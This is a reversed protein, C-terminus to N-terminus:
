RADLRQIDIRLTGPDVEYEDTGAALATATLAIAAMKFSTRM